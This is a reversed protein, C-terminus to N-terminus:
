QNHIIDNCRAIYNKLKIINTESKILDLVKNRTTEDTIEAALCRVEEVYTEHSEVSNEKEKIYIDWDLEIEYPLGFRNKADHGPKRQTYLIRQGSDLGKGDKILTKYNVFYIADVEKKIVGAIKENLELEYRAYAEMQTPDNFNRKANHAILIVNKGAKKATKCLKIFELTKAQAESYGVGYPVEAVSQKGHAKAISEFLIAQYRTLSDIVITECEDSEIMAKVAMSINTITQLQDEDIRTTDIQSSGGEIDLVVPKPAGCAFTTKGVGEVGYLVFFDSEKKKGSSLQFQSM